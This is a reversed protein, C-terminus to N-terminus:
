EFSFRFGFINLQLDYWLNSHDSKLFPHKVVNAEKIHYRFGAKAIIALIEDLQQPRNRHCHYEVFINDVTELHDRCDALVQLEAGEIDLKLLDIKQNLHKLLRVGKVKAIYKENGHPNLEIHGGLSGDPIFDIECDTDWLAENHLNVNELDFTRINERLVQFLMPDPEFAIIQARPYLWKLYITGLGINAGGDIILPDERDSEFKYIEDLLIERYMHLYWYPDTLHIKKGLLPSFM